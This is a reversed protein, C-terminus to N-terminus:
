KKSKKMNEVNKLKAGIEQAIQQVRSIMTNKNNSKTQEVLIKRAIRKHESNMINHYLMMTSHQVRQNAPWTGTEMILGIYSTSIPLNFIRKLVREQIKEIEIMEDKDIKGWAELGHLLAPILCTEYLKLEFKIEEKGVQHKAGIASIQRNIVECKGNLELIHDKLDRSKNIVIGLYKYIDSEQVVGEKVRKEIVEEPEKGTNIVMYKTKKLGYIM